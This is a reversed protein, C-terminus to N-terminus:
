KLLNAVVYFVFPRMGNLAIATLSRNIKLAEAIPRLGEIETNEGKRIHSPPQRFMSYIKQGQDGLLTGGLRLGTLTVNSQLMAAISKAGEGGIKCDEPSCHTLLLIFFRIVTKPLLM